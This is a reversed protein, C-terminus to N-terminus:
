TVLFLYYYNMEILKNIYKHVHVLGFIIIISNIAQKRNM